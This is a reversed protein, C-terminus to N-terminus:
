ITSHKEYLKKKIIATRTEGHAAQKVLASVNKSSVVTKKRRAHPM